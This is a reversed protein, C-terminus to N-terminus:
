YVGLISQPIIGPLMEFKRLLIDGTQAGGISNVSVMTDSWSGPLSAPSGASGAVEAAGNQSLFVQIAGGSTLVTRLALLDGVAPTTSVTSTSTLSGNTYLATIGTSTQTVDIRPNGGVTDGVSWLGPSYGARASNARDLWEMYVTMSQPTALANLPLQVLDGGHTLQYPSNSATGITSTQGPWPQRSAVSQPYEANYTWVYFYDSVNGTYGGLSGQAAAFDIAGNYNITSGDYILGHTWLRYWNPYAGNTTAAPEIHLRSDGSLKQGTSLNFDASIGPTGFISFRCYNLTGAAVYAEYAIYDGVNLTAVGLSVTVGIGVGHYATTTTPNLQNATLTGDPAQINTANITAFRVNSLTNGGVNCFRRISGLAIYPEYIGTIPNLEYDVDRPYQAGTRAVKRTM